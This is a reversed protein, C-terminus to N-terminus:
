HLDGSGISATLCHKPRVLSSFIEELFRGVVSIGCHRHNRSLRPHKEPQEMEVARHGTGELPLFKHHGPVHGSGLASPRCGGAFQSIGRCRIPIPSVQLRDLFLRGVLPLGESRGRARHMTIWEGGIGNQTNAREDHGQFLTCNDFGEREKRREPSFSQCSLFPERSEVGVPNEEERKVNEKACEQGLHSCQFLSEDNPVEFLSRPSVTYEKHCLCCRLSVPIKVSSMKCSSAWNASTIPTGEDYHRRQLVKFVARLFCPSYHVVNAFM